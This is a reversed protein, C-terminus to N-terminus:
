PNGSPTWEWPDTYSQAPPTRHSHDSPTHSLDSLRNDEYVEVLRVLADLRDGEPTGLTAPMLTDIEALTARYDADSKIPKIEM